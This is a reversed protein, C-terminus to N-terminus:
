RAASSAAPTVQAARADHKRGRIAIYGGPGIKFEIATHQPSDCRSTLGTRGEQTHGRRIPLGIDRAEGEDCSSRRYTRGGFGRTEDCYVPDLGLYNGNPRQERELNRLASELM